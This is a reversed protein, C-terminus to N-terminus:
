ASKSELYVHIRQEIEDFDGDSWFLEIALPVLQEKDAKETIQVFMEMLNKPNKMDDHLIEIQNDSLKEQAMLGEIMAQEEPAFVHDIHALAVLARLQYFKSRSIDPQM